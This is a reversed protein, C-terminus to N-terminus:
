WNERLYRTGNIAFIDGLMKKWQKWFNSPPRPIDPWKWKSVRTPNCIRDLYHETARHGYGKSIDVISIVQLYLWCLNIQIM